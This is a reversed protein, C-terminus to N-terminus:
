VISPALSAGEEDPRWSPWDMNGDGRTVHIASVDDIDRVGGLVATGHFLLGPPAVDPDWPQLLHPLKLEAEEDAAFAGAAVFGAAFRESMGFLDAYACGKTRGFELIARAVGPADSRQAVLEVVRLVRGPRGRVDEVRAVAFGRLRGGDRVSIFHYAFVPHRAYRWALMDDSRDFGVADRFVATALAGAGEPVEASVDTGASTAAPPLARDRARKQAAADPEVALSIAAEADLIAIWRECHPFYRFGLKRYITLASPTVSRGFLFGYRGAAYSMLALGVGRGRSEPTSLWSILHAAAVPRGHASAPTPVVGLYSLLVGARDVAVISRDAGGAGPPEVFQWRYFDRNLLLCNTRWYHRRHLEEVAPMDGAAVERVVVGDGTM